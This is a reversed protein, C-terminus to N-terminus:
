LNFKNRIFLEDIQEAGILYQPSIIKEIYKLIKYHDYKSCYIEIKEKETMDTSYRVIGADPPVTKNGDHIIECGKLSNIFELFDRKEVPIVYVEKQFKDSWHRYPYKCVYLKNKFFIMNYTDQEYDDVISVYKDYNSLHWLTESKNRNSCSTCFAFISIILIYSKM